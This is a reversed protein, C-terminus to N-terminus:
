RQSRRYGAAVAAAESAFCEEANTVDYFQGSPVHYIGSDANGKIPAASPCEGDGDPSAQRPAEKKAPAPKKASTVKLNQRRQKTRVGGFTQYRQPVSVTSYLDTPTVANGVTSKGVLEQAQGASVSPGSALQWQGTESNRVALGTRLFSGTFAGTCSETYGTLTVSSPSDVSTVACSVPVLSWAPYALVQTPVHRTAYSWYRYRVTTTVKYKGAKLAVSSRKRAVTSKGKKVTLTQSEFVVNGRSAVKPRITVSKKYKVKQHAIKKITVSNNAATASTGSAAVLGGTLVVGVVITIFRRM